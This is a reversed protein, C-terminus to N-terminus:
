GRGGSTRAGRVGIRTSQQGGRMAVLRDRLVHEVRGEGDRVERDDRRELVPHLRRAHLEHERLLARSLAREDERLEHDDHVVNAVRHEDVGPVEAHTGARAGSAIPRQRRACSTAAAICWPSVIDSMSFTRRYAANCIVTVMCVDSTQAATSTRRSYHQRQLGHPLGGRVHHRGRRREWGAATSVSGRLTRAAEACEHGRGRQVRLEGLRVRVRLM